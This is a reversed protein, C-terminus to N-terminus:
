EKQQKDESLDMAEELSVETHELAENKENLVLIEANRGRLTHVHETCIKCCVVIIEACLVLMNKKRISAFWRKYSTRVSYIYM